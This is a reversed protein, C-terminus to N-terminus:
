PRQGGATHIGVRRAVLHLTWLSILAPLGLAATISRLRLGVGWMTFLLLVSFTSHAILERLRVDGISGAGPLVALMPIALLTFRGRQARAAVAAMRSM